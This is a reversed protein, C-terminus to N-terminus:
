CQEVCMNTNSTYRDECLPKIASSLICSCTGTDSFHLADAMEISKGYPSTGSLMSRAGGQSSAIPWSPGAWVPRSHQGQPELVDSKPPLAQRQMGKPGDAEALTPIDM